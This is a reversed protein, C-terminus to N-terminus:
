KRKKTPPEEIDDGARDQLLTKPQNKLYAKTFIPDKEAEEAYKLLAERPDENRMSSLGYQQKVHNKDPDSAFASNPMEPRTAKINGRNTTKLKRILREGKGDELRAAQDGSFEDPLDTTFNPDDDVHHVKSDRTLVLKAGRLSSTPSYLVRISGNQSGTIIQNIRTNWIVRIVSSTGISITRVPTLTQADLVLITGQDEPHCSQGTLIYKNNPSYM